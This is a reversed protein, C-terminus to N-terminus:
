GAIVTNTFTAHLAPDGSDFETDTDPPPDAVAVALLGAVIRELAPGCATDAVGDEPLPPRRESMAKSSARMGEITSPRGPGLSDALAGFEPAILHRSRSMPTREQRRIPGGDPEPSYDRHAGAAIPLM